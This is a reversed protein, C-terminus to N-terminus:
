NQKDSIPDMIKDKVPDLLIVAELINTVDEYINPDQSANPGTVNLIKINNKEIWRLVIVAAQFISVNSLDVHIWPLGHKMAIKKTYSSSGSLPSHSIILNADAHLANQETKKSYSPIPMEHLHYMDSIPGDEAMRGKPLWGSYHINFNIAVDLAAREAGTQGGSIIKKLM